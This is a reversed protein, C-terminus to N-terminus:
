HEGGVNISGRTKGAEREFEELAAKKGIKKTKPREIKNPVPNSIGDRIVDAYTIKRISPKEIEVELGDIQPIEAQEEEWETVDTHKVAASTQKTVSANAALFPTACESCFKPKAAAYEHPHGCQQCYIKM